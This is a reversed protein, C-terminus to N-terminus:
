NCGSQWYLIPMPPQNWRIGLMSLSAGREGEEEEIGREGERRGERRGEKGREGGRGGRGGEREEKGRDGGRLRNFYVIIERRSAIHTCDYLHQGINTPPDWFITSQVSPVHTIKDYFFLQM